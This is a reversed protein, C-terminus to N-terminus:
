AAKVSTLFADVEESLRASQRALDRAADLVQSAASGTEGAGRKVDVISQTVVQTGQAAQQINRAIDGTAAGQEEMAAAVAASIGNMEAITVNINQLASVAQRTDDQIRSIQSAIEETAKTTQNALEKVESAVVAFGRGAEGARAAEITANLALLNTQSAITNILAVVNGIREAGEALAQVIVDTRRADEAARSTIESSQAVQSAISQITVSLEETAGAVTQVSVSTQEAASAVNVSQRNTTEAALSMTQATGEMTSAAVSLTRTLEGISLEFGATLDQLRQAREGKLASEEAAAEDARDKEILADKFTQVADAIEGMETRTGRWPIEVSLDGAALARMPKLVSAINRSFSRVMAVATATAVLVSLALLGAAAAFTQRYLTASRDRASAAEEDNIKLIKLLALDAAMAITYVEEIQGRAADNQGKRSLDLITQAKQAFKDWERGFDAYLKREDETRLTEVFSERAKAIDEAGLELDMEIQNFASETTNLVHRMVASRYDATTTALTGARRVSPLQEENLETVLGQMTRVAWLSGGGLGLTFLILLSFAVILKTRISLAPLRSM